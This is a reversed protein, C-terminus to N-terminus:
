CGGGEAKVCVCVCPHMCVCVCKGFNCLAPLLCSSDVPTPSPSFSLQTSLSSPLGLILMGCLSLSVSMYRVCSHNKLLITFATAM